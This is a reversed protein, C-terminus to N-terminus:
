PERTLAYLAADLVKGNKVVANKLIGELRFGAKELVRRSAANCAFPEAYIRILDTGAFLKRCLTGVAETMIGQGHYEEALYYGLEATRRHVNEQRFAGVNGIVKGDKEIAYVFVDDPDASLVFGIYAEADRETYPRPLDRLFDAVRENGLVSALSAADSIEWKRLKCKVNMVERRFDSRVNGTLLKGDSGPM